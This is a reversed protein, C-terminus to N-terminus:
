FNRDCLRVCFNMCAGAVCRNTGWGLSRLVGDDDLQSVLTPTTSIAAGDLPSKANPRGEADNHIVNQGQVNEVLEYAACAVAAAAAGVLLGTGSARAKTKSVRAATHVSRAVTRSFM